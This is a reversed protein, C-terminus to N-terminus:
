FQSFPADVYNVVIPFVLISDPDWNSETLCQCLISTVALHMNFLVKMRSIKPLLHCTVLSGCNSITMVYPKGFRMSLKRPTILRTLSPETLLLDIM